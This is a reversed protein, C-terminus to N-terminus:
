CVCVRVSVSMHICLLPLQGMDYKEAEHHVLQCVFVYVYVDADVYVSM